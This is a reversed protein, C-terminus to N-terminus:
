HRYYRLLAWSALTCFSSAGGWYVVGSVARNCASHTHLVHRAVSGHWIFHWVGKTGYKVKHVPKYWTFYYYNLMPTNNENSFLDGNIGIIILHFICMDRLYLPYLPHTNYATSIYPTSHISFLLFYLLCNYYGGFLLHISHRKWDRPLRVGTRGIEWITVFIGFPWIITTSM